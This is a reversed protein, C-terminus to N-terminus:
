LNSESTRYEVNKSCRGQEANYMKQTGANPKGLSAMRIIDSQYGKYNFGGDLFVLDGKKLKYDSPVADCWSLKEGCQTIIIWKHMAGADDIGEKFMTSCIVEALEKETMGEALSEFGARFGKCTIECSKRMLEKEANSKISRTKWIVGSADVFKAEPLSQRIREFERYSIGMRLGPGMEVGITGKHLGKDRLFDTLYDAAAFEHRHQAHFHVDEIWSTKSNGALHEPLLLAADNPAHRPLVAFHRDDKVAWTITQLGTFYILNEKQTLLLYDIGAQDMLKSSKGYRAIFESRPFEQYMAEKM